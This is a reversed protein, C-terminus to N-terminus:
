NRFYAHEEVLCDEVFKDLTIIPFTHLFTVILFEGNFQIYYHFIKAFWMKKLILTQNYVNHQICAHAM